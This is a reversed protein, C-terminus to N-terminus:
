LANSQQHRVIFRAEKVETFSFAISGIRFCVSAMRSRSDALSGTLGVRM